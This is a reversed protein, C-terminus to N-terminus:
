KQQHVSHTSHTQVAKHMMPLHFPQAAAREDDVDAWCMSGEIVGYKEM